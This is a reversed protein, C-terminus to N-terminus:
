PAQMTWRKMAVDIVLEANDLAALIMSDQGNDDRSRFDNYPRDTWDNAEIQKSVSLSLGGDM